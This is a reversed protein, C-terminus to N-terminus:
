SRRSDSAPGRAPFKKVTVADPCPAALAATAPAGGAAGGVTAEATSRRILVTSFSTTSAASAMGSSFNLKEGSLKFMPAGVVSTYAGEGQLDLVDGRGVVDEPRAQGPLLDRLVVFAPVTGLVQLRFGGNQFEQSVGEGQAVPSRRRQRRAVHQLDRLVALRRAQVQGSKGSRMGEIVVSLHHLIRPHVADHRGRARRRRL